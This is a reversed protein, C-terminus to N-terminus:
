IKKQSFYTGYYGDKPRLPMVEIASSIERTWGEIEQYERKLSNAWKIDFPMRFDDCDIYLYRSEWDSWDIKDFLNPDSFCSRLLDVPDKPM